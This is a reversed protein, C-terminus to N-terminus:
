KTLTSPINKDLNATSCTIIPYLQGDRPWSPTGDPYNWHYIFVGQTTTHPLQKGCYPCYSMIETTTPLKKGCFPCYEIKDYQITQPYYPYTVTGSTTTTSGTLDQGNFATTTNKM